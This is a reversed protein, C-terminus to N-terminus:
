QVPSSTLSSVAQKKVRKARMSNNETDQVCSYRYVLLYQLTLVMSQLLM